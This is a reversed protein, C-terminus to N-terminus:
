AGDEIKLGLWEALAAYTDVVLDAENLLAAPFSTTLAAVRCGAGKASRVGNVSDEIVLCRGAPVGLAAVTRRYPQPDPKAKTVDEATIIVEFAEALGFRAFALNLNRRVSSTTLALRVPVGALARVFPQADTVMQMTPLLDHYAQQKAELLTDLALGDRGFHALAHEILARDTQGIFQDNLTAPVAMEFRAFAIRHAEAHLPESDILVGDLDFIVADLAALSLRAAPPM